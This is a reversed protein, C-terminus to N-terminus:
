KTPPHSGALGHMAFFPIRQDRDGLGLGHDRYFFDCKSRNRPRNAGIGPCVENWRPKSHGRITTSTLPGIPHIAQVRTAPEAATIEKSLERHYVSTISFIFRSLGSVFERSHDDQLDYGLLLCISNSFAATSGLGHTPSFTAALDMGDSLLRAHNNPCRNRPPRLGGKIPSVAKRKTCCRTRPKFLSWTADHNRKGVWPYTRRLAISFSFPAM